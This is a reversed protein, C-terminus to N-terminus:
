AANAPRSIVCTEGGDTVVAKSGALLQQQPPWIIAMWTPMHVYMILEAYRLPLSRVFPNCVHPLRLLHCVILAFPAHDPQVFPAVRKPTATASDHLQPTQQGTGYTHTHTQTGYSNFGGVILLQRSCLERRVPNFHGGTRARIRRVKSWRM